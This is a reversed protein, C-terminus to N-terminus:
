TALLVHMNRRPGSQTIAPVDERLCAARAGSATRAGAARVHRPHGGRRARIRAAATSSTSMDQPMPMPMSIVSVCCLMRVSAVLRGAGQLLLSMKSRWKVNVCAMAM